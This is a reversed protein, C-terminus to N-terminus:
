LRDAPQPIGEEAPSRVGLQRILDPCFIDAPHVHAGTLDAPRGLQGPQPQRREEAADV